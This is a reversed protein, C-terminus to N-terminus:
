SPKRGVTALYIVFEDRGDVALLANMADDDFAGVACVGCGVSEAALYLNQCVHGADLFLYRYGRAKYRWCMRPAFATWIFTVAAALIFRQGLCAQSVAAALDPATPVEEIQHRLPLYHYLGPNLGDVRNALLYTELAHRAGASPVMRFTARTGFTAMGKERVAKVGQTCWLLYSLTDQCIPADAYRRVSTRREVLGAFDTAPPRALHPSPLDLTQADDRRATEVPPPAVGREQESLGAMHRYKTREVFKEGIAESM